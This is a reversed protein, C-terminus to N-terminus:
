SRQAHAGRVTHSRSLPWVWMCVWAVPGGRLREGETGKLGRTFVQRAECRMYKLIPDVWGNTAAIIRDDEDALVM